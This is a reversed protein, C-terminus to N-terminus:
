SATALVYNEIRDKEEKKWPMLGNGLHRFVAEYSFDKELM